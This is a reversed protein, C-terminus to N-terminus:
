LRERCGVSPVHVVFEDRFAAGDGEGLDEAVQAMDGTAQGAVRREDGTKGLVAPLVFQAQASHERVSLRRSGDPRGGEDPEEVREFQGVDIAGHNGGEAVEARPANHGVSLPLYRRWASTQDHDAGGPRCHVGCGGETRVGAEQALPSM